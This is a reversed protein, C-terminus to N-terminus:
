YTNFKIQKVTNMTFEMAQSPTFGVKVYAEFIKKTTEAILDFLEPTENIKQFVAVTLQQIEGIQDVTEEFNM